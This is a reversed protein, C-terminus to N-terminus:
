IYGLEKAKREYLDFLKKTMISSVRFQPPIMSVEYITSNHDTKNIIKKMGFLECFKRGKPSIADAIVREIIIDNNLLNIMKEVFSDYIYKLIGINQYSQDVVVSAFYLNYLGPLDYSVICDDDICSDAYKGELMDEYCEDTIPSANIYAVIKNSKTDKIMTYIANDMTLMVNLCKYIWENNGLTNNKLTEFVNEDTPEIQLSKNAM